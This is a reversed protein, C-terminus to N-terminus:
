PGPTPLRSEPNPFATNRLPYPLKQASRVDSLPCPATAHAFGVGAMGFGSDRIGADM